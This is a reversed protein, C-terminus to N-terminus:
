HDDYIRFNVTCLWAYFLFLSSHSSVLHYIGHHNDGHENNGAGDELDYVIDVLGVPSGSGSGSLALDPSSGVSSLPTGFEESLISSM